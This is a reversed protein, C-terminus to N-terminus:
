AQRRLIEDLTRPCYNMWPMMAGVNFIQGRNAFHIGRAANRKLEAKWRELHDNEPTKHVHGCLMYYNPDNSHKYFMIPYHSMIVHRGNDTIEKYDYIGVFEKKLEAPYSQLDHNGQILVKQGSLKRILRLWEDKKGWCFDGLIYVTDGPRVTANWYMVMVEEMQVTDAFPRHDFLIIDKHGFHLDSIYYIAM